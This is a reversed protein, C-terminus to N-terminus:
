GPLLTSFLHTNAGGGREYKEQTNIEKGMKMVSSFFM